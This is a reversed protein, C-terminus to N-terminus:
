KAEIRIADIPIGQKRLEEIRRQASEADRFSGLQVQGDNNRVFAEKEVQKGEALYRNPVVIAYLKDKRPEPKATVMPAYKVPANEIPNSQIVPLPNVVKGIPTLNKSPNSFAIAPAVSPQANTPSPQTTPDASRARLPNTSMIPTWNGLNRVSNISSTIDATVRSQRAQSIAEVQPVPRISSSILSPAPMERRTPLTAASYRRVSVAPQNSKIAPKLTTSISGLNPNLLPLAPPIQLSQVSPFALPIVTQSMQPAQQMQPISTKAIDQLPDQSETSFSSNSNNPTSSNSNSQPSTPPNPTSPLLKNGTVRDILLYGLLGSVGCLGLLVLIGLPSIFNFGESKASTPPTTLKQVLEETQEPTQEPAQDQTQPNSSQINPIQPNLLPNLEPKSAIQNIRQEKFQQNPAQQDKPATTKAQTPAPVQPSQSAREAKEARDLIIYPNETQAIATAIPLSVESKEGKESLPSSPTLQPALHDFSYTKGTKRWHRYRDLEQDLNLDLGVLASQLTPPFTTQRDSSM